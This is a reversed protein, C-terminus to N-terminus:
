RDHGDPRPRLAPDAPHCRWRGHPRLVHPPQRADDYHSRELTRAAREADALMMSARNRLQEKMKIHAALTEKRDREAQQEATLETKRAKPKYVRPRSPRARVVNKMNECVRSRYSSDQWKARIAQSIKARHEPSKYERSPRIKAKEKREADKVVEKAARVVARKARQVALKVEKAEAKEAEEVERWQPGHLAEMKAEKERTAKAYREIIKASIKAKTEATHRQKHGSITLKAIIDPRKMAERTTARIKAKTEESHKLGKNWPVRKPKVTAVKSRKTSVPAAIQEAGAWRSTSSSDLEDASGGPIRQERMADDDTGGVESVVGLGVGRKGRGSEVQAGEVSPKIHLQDMMTVLGTESLVQVTKKERRVRGPPADAFVAAGTTVSPTVSKREPGREGLSGAARVAVAGRRARTSGSEM